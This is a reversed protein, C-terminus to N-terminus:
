PSTFLSPRVDHDAGAGGVSAPDELDDTRDHVDLEGAGIQRLDVGGEGDGVGRDVVPGLVQDDLDGLVQAFTRDAAHGHVGGVAQHPAHRHLVGPSRDLHRHALLHQAPDQVHDAQRDVLAARDVGGLEVGDVAQGGLEGVLRHLDLHELGPDLDHVQQGRVPAAALDAQEAAGAHALGHEDELEDVVDGLLV